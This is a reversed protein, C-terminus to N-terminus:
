FGTSSFRNEGSLVSLVCRPMAAVLSLIWYGVRFIWYGVSSIFFRELFVLFHRFYYLSCGKEGHLAQLFHLYYMSDAFSHPRAAHM